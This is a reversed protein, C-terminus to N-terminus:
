RAHPRRRRPRCGRRGSRRRRSRCTPDRRGSARRTGGSPARPSALAQPRERGAPAVDVELGVVLVLSADAGGVARVVIPEHRDLPAVVRVVHEARIAVDRRLRHPEFGLAAEVDRHALAEVVDGVLPVPGLVPRAEDADLRARAPALGAVHRPDDHPDSPRSTGSSIVSRRKSGGRSRRTCSCGARCAPRGGRAGSRRRRRRAASGSRPRTSGRPRYSRMTTRRPSRGRGAVPRERVEVRHEASVRVPLSFGPPSPLVGPQSLDESSRVRRVQPTIGASPAIRVSTSAGPTSGRSTEPPTVTAATPFANPATWASSPTDRRTRAARPPRPRRARAAAALRRQELEHAPQLRGVAPRDVRRRAASIGCRSPSSGHSDASSLAASASRTAPTARLRPGRRLGRASRRTRARPSRAPAARAREGAAHALADREQARQEGAPRQQAEVLREAREVRQRAPLHLAPQGVRQSRSGRM